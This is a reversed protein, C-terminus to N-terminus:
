LNLKETVNATGWIIKVEVSSLAGMRSFPLYLANENNSFTRNAQVPRSPVKQRPKRYGRKNKNRSYVKQRTTAETLFRVSATHVTHIKCVCDQGTEPPNGASDNQWRFGESTCQDGKAELFSIQPPGEMGGARLCALLPCCLNWQGTNARYGSSHKAKKRHRGWTGTTKEIGKQKKLKGEKRRGQQFTM